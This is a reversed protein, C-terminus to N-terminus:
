EEAGVDVHKYCEPQRVVQGFENLVIAAHSPYESTAASSLISHFAKEADNKNDKKYSSVQFTGDKKVIIELAVYNM